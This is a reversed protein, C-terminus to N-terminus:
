GDGLTFVLCRAFNPTSLPLTYLDYSNPPSAVTGQCVNTAPAYLWHRPSPKQRGLCLDTTGGRWGTVDM